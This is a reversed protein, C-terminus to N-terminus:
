SGGGAAARRMLEVRAAVRANAARRHACYENWEAETMAEMAGDAGRVYATQSGNPERRHAVVRGTSLMLDPSPATM